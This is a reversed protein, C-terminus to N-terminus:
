ASKQDIMAPKEEPVSIIEADFDLSTQARDGNIYLWLEHELKTVNKGTNESWGSQPYGDIGDSPIAPTNINLETDGHIPLVMQATITLLCKGSTDYSFKIGTPIIKNDYEDPLECIETVSKSFNGLVQYLEPRAKDKCKLAYADWDDAQENYEEWCITNIGKKVNFKTIRKKM